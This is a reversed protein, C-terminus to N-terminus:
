NSIQNTLQNINLDETLDPLTERKEAVNLGNSEIESYVENEHHEEVNIGFNGEVRNSVIDINGDEELVLEGLPSSLAYLGEEIDTEYLFYIYEKDLNPEQFDVHPIVVTDIIDGEEDLIEHHTEVNLLINISDLSENNDNKYVDTVEFDYISGKVYDDGEKSPDSADRVSNISEIESIHEGKVIIDSSSIVEEIDSPIAEDSSIMLDPDHNHEESNDNNLATSSEEETQNCGTFLLPTTCLLAMYFKKKNSM